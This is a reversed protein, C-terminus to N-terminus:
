MGVSPLGGEDFNFFGERTSCQDLMFSCPHFEVWKGETECPLGGSDGSTLGVGRRRVLSGGQIAFHRMLPELAHVKGVDKVSRAFIGGDFFSTPLPPQLLQIYSRGPFTPV